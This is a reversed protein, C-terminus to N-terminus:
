GSQVEVLGVDLVVDVEDKVALAGFLASFPAYGFDSQRIKFRGKARLGGDIRSLHMPVDIQRTVGRLTFKGKVHVDGTTGSISTSRFSITAFQELFLQAESWIHDLIEQRQGETPGAAVLGVRSRVSPDDPKLDAVRVIM